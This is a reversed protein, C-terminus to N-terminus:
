STTLSAPPLLLTEQVYVSGAGRRAGGVLRCQGRLDHPRHHCRHRPQHRDGQGGQDGRGAGLAAGDHGSTLSVSSVVTMDDCQMTKGLSLCLGSKMYVFFVFVHEKM